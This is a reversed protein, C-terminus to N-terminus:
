ARVGVMVLIIRTYLMPLPRCASRERLRSSNNRNSTKIWIEEIQTLRRHIRSRWNLRSRSSHSHAATDASLSAVNCAAQEGTACPTQLRGPPIGPAEPPPGPSHDPPARRPILSKEPHAGKGWTPPLLRRPGRKDKPKRRLGVCLAVLLLPVRVGCTREGCWSLVFVAAVNV